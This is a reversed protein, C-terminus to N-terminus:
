FSDCTDVIKTGNNNSRTVIGGSDVVGTIVHVIKNTDALNNGISNEIVDGQNSQILIQATQSPTENQTIENKNATSAAAVVALASENENDNAPAIAILDNEGNKSLLVTAGVTKLMPASTSASPSLLASDVLIAVAPLNENQTLITTDATTSKVKALELERQQENVRISLEGINNTLNAITSNLTEMIISNNQLQEHHQHTKGILNNLEQRNHLSLNSKALAVIDDINKKDIRSTRTDNKQNSTANHDICDSKLTTSCNKVNLQGNGFIPIWHEAKIRQKTGQGATSNTGFLSSLNPINEIESCM